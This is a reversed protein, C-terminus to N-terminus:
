KRGAFFRIWCELSTEKAKNYADDISAIDNARDVSEIVEGDDLVATVKHIVSGYRSYLHKHTFLREQQDKGKLEPYVHIPAPHGNYIELPLDCAVASMIRLYGHLTVLAGPKDSAINELRAEIDQHSLITFRNAMRSDSTDIARQNNTLILDPWRSIHEAINCIESGTQSFLAVWM